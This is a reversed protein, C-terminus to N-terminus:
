RKSFQFSRRAGALGYKKREVERPDRTLFGHDRLVQEMNPDFTKLARAIGLRVAQAQGMPGGGTVRVVIDFKGKTNTVDLPSMVDTRDRIETFYEEVSKNLKRSKQIRIEGKGPKLRVRAVATKRRGTGRYWGQKDPGAPKVMTQGAGPAAMKATLESLSQPASSAPANKEENM